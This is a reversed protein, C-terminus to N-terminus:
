DDQEVQLLGLGRWIYRGGTSKLSEFGRDRLKGGLKRQSMASAIGNEITWKQYTKYLSEASVSATPLQTCCDDLFAALVDMEAQYAEVAARVEEPLGLGEAQWKLCGQVAWTLIGAAEAKLKEPLHIDKMDDTIKVLFPILRIRRWIGHDGGAIQPKHNAALWLKFTPKFEFFEGFLFRATITDGGTIQKITSEALQQNEETEVATVLRAGRLRAVDNNTTSTSDARRMITSTPTNLSYDAFLFRLLELLTSKGNSGSGHLIFMVQEGIQGTLSYGVAKQIFDILNQNGGLIQSLFHLWTPCAADPHYPANAQKMLLQERNHPLMEGTRLNIVCNQANLLMPDADFVDPLVSIGPETEALAIMAALKGASESKQSWNRIADRRADTQADKAEEPIKRVVKKAMRVVVGTEDVEWRTKNWIIWAKLARCYHLSGNYRDVLREANGYDTLNRGGWAQSDGKPESHGNGNPSKKHQQEPIARVQKVNKLASAITRQSEDEPSGNQLAASLMTAEVEFQTLGGRGILSGMKLTQRYLAENRNGESQAVVYEFASKLASAVYVAEFDDNWGETKPQVPHIEIQHQAVPQPESVTLKQFVSLLHNAAILAPAASPPTNIFEYRHGSDHNSPPLLAYHDDYRLDLSGGSYAPLQKHGVGGLDVDQSRVWVHYGQQSGTRVAWSYDTFLGLYDLLEMLLTDDEQKDLDFCVLGGSVAGCVAAIGTAKQWNLREMHAAQQRVGQWQKWGKEVPQKGSVPLINFGLSWYFRTIQLWDEHFM